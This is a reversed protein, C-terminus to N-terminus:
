FWFSVIRAFCARHAFVVAFPSNDVGPLCHEIPFALTSGGTDASEQLWQEVGVKKAERADSSCVRSVYTMSVFQIEARRELGDAGLGSVLFFLVANLLYVSGHIFNHVTLEERRPGTRRRVPSHLDRLFPHALARSARHM